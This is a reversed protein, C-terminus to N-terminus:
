VLLVGSLHCGFVSKVISSHPDFIVLLLTKSQWKDGTQRCIVILFETELSKQDINTSLILAKSQRRDPTLLRHMKSHSSTVINILFKCNDIM